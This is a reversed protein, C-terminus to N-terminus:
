GAVLNSHAHHRVPNNVLRVDRRNPSAHADDDASECIPSIGVGALQFRLQAWIRRLFPEYLDNLLRKLSTPHADLLTHLHM